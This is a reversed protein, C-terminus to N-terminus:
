AAARHGLKRERAAAHAAGNAELHGLREDGRAVAMARAALPPGARRRGDRPADRAAREPDERALLQKAGVIRRRSRSTKRSRRRSAIHALARPDSNFDTRSPAEVAVGADTRAVPLVHVVGRHPLRDRVVPQRAEPLGAGGFYTEAAPRAYPRASRASRRRLIELLLATGGSDSSQRDEVEALRRPVAVRVPRDEERVTARVLM